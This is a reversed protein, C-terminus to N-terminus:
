VSVNASHSFIRRPGPIFCCLAPAENSKVLSQRKMRAAVDLQAYKAFYTSMKFDYTNSHLKCTAKRGTLACNPINNNIKNYIFDPKM